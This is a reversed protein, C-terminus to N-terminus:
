ALEFVRVTMNGNRASLSITKAPAIPNHHYSWKKREMNGRDWSVGSPWYPPVIRDEFVAAAYVPCSWQKSAIAFGKRAFYSVGSGPGRRTFRHVLSLIVEVGPNTTGNKHIGYTDHCVALYMRKGCLSFIRDKGDERSLHDAAPELIEEEGPAPIFKRGISVIGDQSVAVATQDRWKRGDIGFCVVSRRGKQALLNSINSQAWSYLTRAEKNGANFWGAPFLIIGDSARYECVKEVARRLLDMRVEKTHKGIEELLV